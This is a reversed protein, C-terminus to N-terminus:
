WAARTQMEKNKGKCDLVHSTKDSRRSVRSPQSTIKKMMLEPQLVCNDVDFDALADAANSLVVYLLIPCKTQQLLHDCTSARRIQM